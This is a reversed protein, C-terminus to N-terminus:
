ERIKMEDFDFFIIRPGELDDELGLYVGNVENPICEVFFYKASSKENLQSSLLFLM